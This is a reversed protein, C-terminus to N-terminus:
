PLDSRRAYNIAYFLAKLPRLLGLSLGFILPVWLLAHLWFPPQYSVEVILAAGVVLAGVFLVVFVAPGDGTDRVKLELECHNCTEAVQLFGDFLNGAGCRPCRCLLGVKLPSVPPTDGNETM